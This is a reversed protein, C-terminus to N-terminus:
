GNKLRKIVVAINRDIRYNQDWMCFAADRKQNCVDKSDVILTLQECLDAPTIEAPVLYGNESTVIEHNGGVDTALVPIGYSMAEMISVPLGESISVNVFLDVANNAYYKHVLNNNLNGKFIVDVNRKDTNEVIAKVKGFDPGTGIVTWEIKTDGNYLMLAKAFIDLRKVSSIGSCTVIRFVNDESSRSLGECKKKSGFHIAYYKDTHLLIDKNLEIYEKMVNESIFYIENLYKEKFRDCVVTTFENKRFDVEYSHVYSAAFIKPNYKAVKAAAIANADYWTSFISVNDKYKKIIDNSSYFLLNSLFISRWYYRFFIFNLKKTKIALLYDTFSNKSFINIFSIAIAFFWDSMSPFIYSINNCLGYFDGAHCHKPFVVYIKDFSNRAEKLFADLVTSFRNTNNFVILKM